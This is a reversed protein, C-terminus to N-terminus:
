ARWQGAEVSTGAVLDGTRWGLELLEEEGVLSFLSAAAGGPLVPSFLESGDVRALADPRPGVAEVVSFGQRERHLGFVGLVRLERRGPLRHVFCGDLPEHPEGPIVRAWIRREPLQAYYPPHLADDSPEALFALFDSLREGPLEVTIAGGDWYLYAHHVLAALQDIGEGMGEEPRLDRVLEVVERVMLFADRDFPDQSGRELASRITSFATQAITAFVLDYPLPRPGAM